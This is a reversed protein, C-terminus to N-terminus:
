LEGLLRLIVVLAYPIAWGLAIVLAVILTVDLLYLTFRIMPVLSEM